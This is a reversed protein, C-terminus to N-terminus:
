DPKRQKRTSPISKGARQIGPPNGPVKMTQFLLLGLDVFEEVFSKIL